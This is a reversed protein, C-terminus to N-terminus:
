LRGAQTIRTYLFFPPFGTMTWFSLTNYISIELPASFVLYKSSM